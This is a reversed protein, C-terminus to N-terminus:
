KITRLIFFISMVVQFRNKKSTAITAFRLLQIESLPLSRKLKYINELRKFRSGSPRAERYM